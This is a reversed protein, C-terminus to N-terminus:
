TAEWTANGFQGFREGGQEAGIGDRVVSGDRLDAARCRVLQRKFGIRRDMRAVTMTAVGAHAAARRSREMSAVVRLARRRSEMRTSPSRRGRTGGCCIPCGSLPVPKTTGRRSRFVNIAPM